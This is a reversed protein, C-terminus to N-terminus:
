SNDVTSSDVTSSDVTSSDVTSSDVTSSDVTSANLSSANMSSAAITGAATAAMPNATAESSLGLGKALQAKEDDSLDYSRVAGEFNDSLSGRFRADSSARQIVQELSQKSM